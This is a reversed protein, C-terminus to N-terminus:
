GKVKGFTRFVIFVTEFGLPCSLGNLGSSEGPLVGPISLKLGWRARCAM